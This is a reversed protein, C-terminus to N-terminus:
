VNSELCHSDVIAIASIICVGFAVTEVTNHLVFCMKTYNTVKNATIIFVQRRRTRNQGFSWFPSFSRVMIRNFDISGSNMFYFTGITLVLIYVIPLLFTKPNPVPQAFSIVLLSFWLIFKFIPFLLSNGELHGGQKSADVLLTGGELHACRRRTDGWFIGGTM